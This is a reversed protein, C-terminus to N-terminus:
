EVAEKFRYCTLAAQFFGFDRPSTHPVLEAEKGEPHLYLAGRRRLIDRQNNTFIAAEYAATQVRHWKEPAGTKIDITWPWADGALWGFFDVMGCYDFTPHHLFAERLLPSAGRRVRWLRYSEVYGAWDDPVSFMDLVDRDVLTTAEHIFTGRNRSEETYYSGADALLQAAIVSTVGPVSRGARTYAHQDDLRIGDAEAKALFIIRNVSEVTAASPEAM